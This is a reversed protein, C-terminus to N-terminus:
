EFLRTFSFGISLYASWDDENNYATSLQVPGIGTEVGAYASWSYLLNDWRADGLSSWANGAEAGVGAFWPVLPGGFQERLFLSALAADEGAIEGRSFASLRKFGGLVVSNEIGAVGGTVTNTFILGTLTTDEWTHAALAMARVSDFNRDSGLSKRELKGRIGAFWGTQPLFADDLSDHELALNASAKEITKYPVVQAGVQEDVTAYGRRYTLRIENNAGLEMGLALDAESTSLDVETIRVGDGNFANFSERKYEAGMTLFREYGYDLPQYWETRAWPRTGLQLGTNWEAGLSNLETMRVAAAVNFETQTEFNDEYNLGFSLYNPGWSKRRVRILLGSDGDPLRELSYAVTEYYGLGYIRKLDNELQDTDLPEGVKQEIRSRIFDDALRNGGEVRIRSILSPSFSRQELRERYARWDQEAVSLGSLKVAHRRAETAGLEFFPKAQYFDASSLQGLDPRILVDHDGLQELQRETNRRTLLTTLQGVVTFADELEEKDMLPDTIDVAIVVDAGLSKAVSVPLNNAVGGDVLLQGDRSVPAYVGPISMSARVADSLNGTGIVVPEGTELDTAVARFPIPLKDFDDVLAADHTLENLIFGLNQGAIIGGGFTLGESGVGIGPTVPFRWDNRKRRVPKFVRGPDDRFSSLWDLNIFRSEIDEVPMGSAYLAGVASGASTGVVLDVPVQIEELVRLVGVHAMGKAGGGSLVLAVKPRAAAAASVCFGLLFVLLWRRM